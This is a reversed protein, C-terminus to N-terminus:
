DLKGARSAALVAFLLAAALRLKDRHERTRRNSHAHVSEEHFHMVIGRFSFRVSRIGQGQRFQFSCQLLEHCDM